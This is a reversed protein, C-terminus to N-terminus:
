SMNGNEFNESMHLPTLKPTNGIKMNASTLFSAVEPAILLGALMAVSKM